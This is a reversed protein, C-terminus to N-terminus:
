YEKPIQSLITGLHTRCLVCQHKNADTDYLPERFNEELEPNQNIELITFCKFMEWM